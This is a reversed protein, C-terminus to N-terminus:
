HIAEHELVEEQKRLYERTPQMQQFRAEREQNMKLNGARESQERRKAAQREEDRVVGQYM